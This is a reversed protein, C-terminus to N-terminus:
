NRLVCLQALRLASRRPPRSPCTAVPVPASSPTFERGLLIMIAVALLGLVIGASLIALCLHMLAHPMSMPGHGPTDSSAALVSVAHDGLSMSAGASSMGIPAVLRGEVSAGAAPVPMAPGDMSGVTSHMAVVGFLAALVLLVREWRWRGTDHVVKV